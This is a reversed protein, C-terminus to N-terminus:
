KIEADVLEADGRLCYYGSKLRHEQWVPCTACLCPKNSDFDDCVRESIDSSCYLGAFTKPYSEVKIKQKVCESEAQVPCHPCLCQELNDSSYEVKPMIEGTSAAYLM